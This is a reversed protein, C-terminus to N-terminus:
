KKLRVETIDIFGPCSIGKNCCPQKGTGSFVIPTGVKNQPISKVLSSDCITLFKNAAPYDSRNILDLSYGIINSGEISKYLIAERNSFTVVAEGKCGECEDKSCSQIMLSNM